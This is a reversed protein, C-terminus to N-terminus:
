RKKKGGRGKEEKEEPVCKEIGVMEVEEEM